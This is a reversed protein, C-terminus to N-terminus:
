RFRLVLGSSVNVLTSAKPGNSSQQQGVGVEVVRFDVHRFITYDMGGAVLYVLKNDFNQVAILTSRAGTYQTGGVGISAQVYPRLPLAPAQASVRVGGLVNRYHFNNGSAYEGRLDFGAHILRPRFIDYYAGGTGGYFMSSTGGNNEGYHTLDFTGYVAQARAATGVCGLALLGLMWRLKM